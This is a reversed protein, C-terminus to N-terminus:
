PAKPPALLADAERFLLQSHYWDHYAGGLLPQGKAPDPMKGALMTQAQDHAAAAQDAHGLRFHAMALVAFVTADRNTGEVSPAAKELWAVADAYRGARYHVLGNSLAIWRFNVHKENGVAARRALNVVREFDAVAGPLLACTKATREAISPDISDEFRRLM